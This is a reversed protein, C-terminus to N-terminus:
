SERKRLVREVAAPLDKEVFDAGTETDTGHTLRITSFGCKAGATVDKESDGIMWSNGPDVGHESMIKEIMGTKPKRCECRINYPAVTGDPNHPCYYFGSFRVGHKGFREEMDSHVNKVEVESMFGKAIRGQNTVVFLLYGASQLKLLAGPYPEPIRFDGVRHIYREGRPMLVTKDRDLLVCKVGRKKVAKESM